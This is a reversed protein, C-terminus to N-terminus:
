ADRLIIEGLAIQDAVPKARQLGGALIVKEDREVAVLEDHQPGFGGEDPPTFWNQSVQRGQNPLPPHQPKGILEGIMRQVRVNIMAKVEELHKEWGARDPRHIMAMVERIRPRFGPIRPQQVQMKMVLYKRQLGLLRAQTPNAGDVDVIARPEHDVIARRRM